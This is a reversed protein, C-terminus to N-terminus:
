TIDQCVIQTTEGEIAIMLRKELKNKM